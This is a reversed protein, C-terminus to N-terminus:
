QSVRESAGESVGQRLRTGDIQVLPKQRLHVHLATFGGRFFVMAVYEVDHSGGNTHVHICTSVWEYASTYVSMSQSVSM